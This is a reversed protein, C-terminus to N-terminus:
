KNNDRVRYGHTRLRPVMTPLLAARVMNSEMKGFAKTGKIQLPGSSLAGAMNGIKKISVKMASVMPGLLSAKAMCKTIGGSDLTYAAMQGSTLVRVMSITLRSTVKTVIAMPGNSCM